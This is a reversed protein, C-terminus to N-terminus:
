VIEWVVTVTDSVSIDDPEMDMSYGDETNDASIKRMMMSNMPRVEM